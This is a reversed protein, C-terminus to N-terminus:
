EPTLLRDSVARGLDELFPDAVTEYEYVNDNLVGNENTYLVCTLFFARGTREDVVHANDISFGYARGVKNSIRVDGHGLAARAGPLLFKVYHDPYDAPDYLPNDSERPLEGMAEVLFARHAEDLDFEMGDPVLDPRVVRVLMMQLDRLSVASKQSFDVPGDTVGGRGAFARGVRVGPQDNPPLVLPSTREPLEITPETRLEIRPSRRNDELSRAESLRHNLRVSTLGARWMSENAREHGVLEFLRNFARNDSVLFLKRIEHGITITGGYANSADREDLQEDDFLPHFAVPTDITLGPATSDRLEEILELASIAACLKITSAPYFYEHDPRFAHQVLSENGHEDEVIEGVLIQLRHESANEILPAWRDPMDDLLADMWDDAEVPTMAALSIAFAARIM